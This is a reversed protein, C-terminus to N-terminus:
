LEEIYNNLDVSKEKNHTIKNDSNYAKNLIELLNNNKNIQDTFNNPILLSFPNNKIKEIISFANDKNNFINKMLTNIFDNSKEFEKDNNQPQTLDQPYYPINQNSNNM